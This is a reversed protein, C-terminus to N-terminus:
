QYALKLFDLRRRVTWPPISTKGAIYSVVSGQDQLELSMQWLGYYRRIEPDKRAAKKSTAAGTTKGGVREGEREREITERVAAQVKASAAARESEATAEVAAALAVDARAREVDLAARVATESALLVAV